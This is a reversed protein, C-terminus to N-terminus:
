PATPNASLGQRDRDAFSFLRLPTSRLWAASWDLSAGKNRRQTIRWVPDPVTTLVEVPGETLVAAHTDHKGEIISLALWPNARM